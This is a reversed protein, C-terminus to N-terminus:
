FQVFENGSRTGLAQWVGRRPLGEWWGGASRSAGLPIGYNDVPWSDIADAIFRVSGDGMLVNVGGDHLSSASYLRATLASPPVRRYSNPPSFTTLLTDALDGSVWWGKRMAIGPQAANLDDFSAVSKETVFLTTSLGDPVSAWRLPHIDTFVGDAQAALPAPVTCSPSGSPLAKVPCTGFCGSYSTRSMRLRSGPPDSAMPQLANAALEVTEAVADSPCTLVQLRVGHLFVNENAFISASQNVADFLPTQDLQPLM